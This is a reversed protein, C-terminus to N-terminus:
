SENIAELFSIMPHATIKSELSCNFIKFGFQKAFRAALAHAAQLTANITQIEQTTHGAGGPLYGSTYHDNIGTGYGADCGLLYVVNPKYERYAIQIASPVSGGFSCIQPWHWGSPPHLKVNRHPCPTVPNISPFDTWIEGYPPRMSNLINASIWCTYDQKAHKYADILWDKNSSRDMYVHDTPRWKTKAFAQWLRGTGFSVEGILLDLDVLNLSPGTGVIFIM